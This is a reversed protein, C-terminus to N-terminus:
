LGSGRRGKFNWSGNWVGRADLSGTGGQWKVGEMTYEVRDGISNYVEMVMEPQTLIDRLDSPSFGLQRASNGDIKFLNVSFSVKHATEALEAVELQDIVDIDTLTNDENISFGGVFAVKIGNLKLSGKSGTFVQTM